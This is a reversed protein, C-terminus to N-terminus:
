FKCCRAYCVFPDNHRPSRAECRWSRSSSRYSRTQSIGPSNRSGARFPLTAGGSTAVYGSSCTATLSEDRNFTVNKSSSVRNCTPRHTHGTRSFSGHSVGDVKSTSNARDANSASTAHGAQTARDAHGAHGAHSATAAHGTLDTNQAHDATDAQQAQTVHEAWAAHASEPVSHLPFIAQEGDLEVVLQLDGRQRFLQLDLAEVRGLTTSFYGQLLTLRQTESFYLQRNNDYLAFTVYLNGTVPKGEISLITGHIPLEAPTDALVPTATLAAVVLGVWLTSRISGQIKKKSSTPM